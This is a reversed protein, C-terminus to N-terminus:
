YDYDVKFDYGILDPIHHHHNNYDIQDHFYDCSFFDPFQFSLKIM